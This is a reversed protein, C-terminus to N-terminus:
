EAKKVKKVVKKPKPAVEDLWAQAAEKTPFDKRTERENDTVFAVHTGNYEDIRTKM